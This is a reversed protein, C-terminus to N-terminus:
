KRRRVMVFVLMALGALAAYTSPEPVPAPTNPIGSLTLTAAWMGNPPGNVATGIGSPSTTFYGGVEGQM